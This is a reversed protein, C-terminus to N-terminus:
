PAMPLIRNMDSDIQWCKLPFRWKLCAIVVNPEHRFGFVSWLATLISIFRTPNAGPRKRIIFFVVLSVKPYKLTSMWLRNLYVTKGPMFMVTM